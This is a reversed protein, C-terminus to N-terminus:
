KFFLRKSFLGTAGSPDPPAQAAIQPAGSGDFCRVTIKHDGPQFLIDRRWIVWTTPSLPTRLEAEQWPGDDVKLEVRSIGRAGAHAIGGVPIVTQGDANVYAMDVAITDIVSTAKMQATKDWGRTVWYGPEWHDTAEISEIWKPQKMGYVDPIYIRLPFGHSPLLPVGDWEYALMVRKDSRIVDLSVVEWFGDSSRIKLHTANQRIGLEPLLQRLSVGTWRTTSTLDGGVPNSICALTIFQHEQPYRRLEGLTLALPRKVLGEIKLRWEREDIVMPTTDIDIRYHQELPTYEPRTGPAPKVAANANPLPHTSSWRRSRGPVLSKGSKQGVLFGVVAGGVTITASFGALRILFRRRDLREVSVLPSSVGGEVTIANGAALLRNCAWGLAAGWSIFVIIIWPVGFTSSIGTEHGLYSSILAAFVGFVGGMSLGLILAYRGRLARVVGFLAAGSVAGTIFFGAIGMSQEMAKAVVATPGLGLSSIVSVMSSIGFAIIGGPLVRATWDFVEFPVFPLGAIRWGAFFVAIVALTLAAGSL